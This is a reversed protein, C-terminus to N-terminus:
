KKEKKISDFINEVMRVIDEKDLGMYMLEVIGTKLNKEVQQKKDEDFKINIVGSIYTGKGRITEIVGCRELEQYAKSVTNPTVSLEMAMKRVSPIEDQPKLYGKLVDSKISDIIQEYLPKNSRADIKILAAGGLQTNITNVTDSWTICNYYFLIKFRDVLNKLFSVLFFSPTFM